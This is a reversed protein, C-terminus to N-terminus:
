LADTFAPTEAMTEAGIRSIALWERAVSRRQRELEREAQELRKRMPTGEEWRFAARGAASKLEQRRLVEAALQRKRETFDHM